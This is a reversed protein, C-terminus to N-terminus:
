RALQAEAVVQEGDVLALQSMPHSKPLYLMAVDGRPAATGLITREGDHMWAVQLAKSAGRVLIVYWSGDQPYMVYATSGNSMGNFATTRHPASELRSIADADSRMAAHMAANQGWFYATPLLGIAVAAALAGFTALWAPRRAPPRLFAVTSPPVHVPEAAAMAAVEAEAAGLAQACPPCGEAHRDIADRAGADLIGLAYLAADEGVHEHQNM